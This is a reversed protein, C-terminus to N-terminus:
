NERERERGAKGRGSSLCTKTSEVRAHPVVRVRARARAALAHVRLSRMCVSLCVLVSHQTILNLFIKCHEVQIAEM